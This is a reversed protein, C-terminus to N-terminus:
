EAFRIRKKLKLIKKASVRLLFPKRLWSKDRLNRGYFRNLEARFEGLTTAQGVERIFDLDERFFDPNRRLLFSAVPVAHLYLCSWFVKMQFDEQPCKFFECYIEQFLKPRENQDSSSFSNAGSLSSMTM